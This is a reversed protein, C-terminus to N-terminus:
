GGPGEEPLTRLVGSAMREVLSKTATVEDEGSVSGHVMWEIREGEPTLVIAATLLAAMTASEGCEKEVHKVFNDMAVDLGWRDIEM